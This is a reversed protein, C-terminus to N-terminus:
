SSHAAKTRCDQVGFGVCLLVQLLSHSVRFGLDEGFRLTRQRKKRANTFKYCQVSHAWADVYSLVWDIRLELAPPGEM